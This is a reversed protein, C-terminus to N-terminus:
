APKEKLILIPGSKLSIPHGAIIVPTKACATIIFYGRKFIM